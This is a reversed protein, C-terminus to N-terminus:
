LIKDLMLCLLWGLFDRRGSFTIHGQFHAFIISHFTLLFSYTYRLSLPCGRKLLRLQQKSEKDDCSKLNEIVESVDNTEYIKETMIKLKDIKKNMKQTEKKEISVEHYKDLVEQAKLQIDASNGLSSLEEKLQPLKESKCFHTALGCSVLEQGKLRLGTLALM